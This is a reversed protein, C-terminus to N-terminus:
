LNSVNVDCILGIYFCLFSDEVDVHRDKSRM